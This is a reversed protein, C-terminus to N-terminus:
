MGNATVTKYVPVVPLGYRKSLEATLEETTWQDLTAKTVKRAWHIAVFNDVLEQDPWKSFDYDRRGRMFSVIQSRTITVKCDGGTAHPEAFEWVESAGCVTCKGDRVKHGNTSCCDDPLIKVGFEILAQAAMTAGDGNRLVVLVHTIFQHRTM